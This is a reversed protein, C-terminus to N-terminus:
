ALLEKEFPYTTLPVAGKATIHVLQELKVGEGGREDGIFSEVCVTMNEALEGDYGKTVLDQPYSIYPFEGCL